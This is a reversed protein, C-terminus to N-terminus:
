EMWSPKQLDYLYQYGKKNCLRKIYKYLYNPLTATSCTLEIWYVSGDLVICGLNDKNLWNYLKKNLKTDQKKAVDWIYSTLITNNM